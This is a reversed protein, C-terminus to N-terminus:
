MRPCGPLCGGAPEGRAWHAFRHAWTGWFCRACSRLWGGLTDSYVARWPVKWWVKFSGDPEGMRERIM